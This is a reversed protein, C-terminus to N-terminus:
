PREKVQVLETASTNAFVVVGDFSAYLDIPEWPDDWLRWGFVRLYHIGRLWERLPGKVDALSVYASQGSELAGGIASEIAYPPAPPLEHPLVPDDETQRASATGGRTMLAVAFYRAGLEAELLGGMSPRGIAYRRSLHELHGWLQMRATPECVRFTLVMSAMAEDRLAARERSDSADALRFHWELTRAALADRNADIGAGPVVAIAALANWIADRGHADLARWREGDDGRLGKLLEAVTGDFRGHGVLLDIATANRQIDFGVFRVKPRRQANLDRIKQLANQFEVTMWAFYGTAWAAENLSTSGGTVYDDVPLTDGFAAELAIWTYGREALAETAFVRYETFEATGHNSEALALIDVNQPLAEILRPRTESTAPNPPLTRADVVTSVRMTLPPGPVALDAVVSPIALAASNVSYRAPPLCGRVKGDDPVDFIFEDGTFSSKRVVHVKVDEPFPSNAANTLDIKVPECEASMQLRYDRAPLPVHEVYSYANTSTVAVSVAPAAVAFAFRGDVDTETELVV